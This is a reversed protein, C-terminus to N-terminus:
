YIDKALLGLLFVGCLRIPLNHCHAQVYVGPVSYLILVCDLRTSSWRLIGRRLGLADDSGSDSAEPESAAESESGSKWVPLLEAPSELEPLLADSDSDSAPDSEASESPASLADSGSALDSALAASDLADSVSHASGSGLRARRRAHNQRHQHQTISSTLLTRNFNHKLKGSHMNLAGPSLGSGLRATDHTIKVQPKM